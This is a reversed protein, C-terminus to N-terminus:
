EPLEVFFQAAKKSQLVSKCQAMFANCKWTPSGRKSGLYGAIIDPRQVEDKLTKYVLERNNYTTTVAPRIHSLSFGLGAGVYSRVEENSDCEIAVNAECAAATFYSKYFAGSGYKDLLVMPYDALQDLSVMKLHALPHNAEMMIYPQTSKITEYTIEPPPPPINYTLFVDLEGRRILEYFEKPGSEVITITLEPHDKKMVSLIDAMFYPTLTEHFGVSLTDNSSSRLSSIEDDFSKIEDLVSQTRVLVSQGQKTLLLGKAPLRIFLDFGLEHELNTIATIVSSKSIHLTDAAKSFSSHEAATVFYKLYKLTFNM